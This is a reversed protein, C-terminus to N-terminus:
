GVQEFIVDTVGAWELRSKVEGSVILAAGFGGIRFIHWSGVKRGDLALKAFARYQGALDPRVADDRELKEFESRSEDVCDICTEVILIFYSERSHRGEIVVPEMVANAHLGDVEPPGELASRSRTSM